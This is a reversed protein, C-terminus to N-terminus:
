KLSIYLNFCTLDFSSSINVEVALPLALHIIATVGDLVNDFAGKTVFDPVVAFQFQGKEHCKAILASQSQLESINREHRVVGRM